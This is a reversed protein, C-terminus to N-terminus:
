RPQRTSVTSRARQRDTESSIVREAGYVPSSGGSLRTLQPPFEPFAQVCSHGFLERKDLQRHSSVYGPGYM